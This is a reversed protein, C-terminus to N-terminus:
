VLAAGKRKLPQLLDLTECYSPEGLLLVARVAKKRVESPSAPSRSDSWEAVAGLVRGSGGRAAYRAKLEEALEEADRTRARLTKRFFVFSVVGSFLPSFLLFFFPMLQDQLLARTVAAAGWLFLSLWSVLCVGLALQLGRTIRRQLPALPARQGLQTRLMMISLVHTFCMSSFAMGLLAFCLIDYVWLM